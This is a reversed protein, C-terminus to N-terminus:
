GNAIANRAFTLVACCAVLGLIAIVLMWSIVRRKVFLWVMAIIGSIMGTAAPLVAIVELMESQDRTPKPDGLIFWAVTVVAFYWPIEIIAFVFPLFPILFSPNCGRREKPAEYDLDMPSQNSM